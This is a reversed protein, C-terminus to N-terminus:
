RPSQPPKRTFHWAGMALALVALGFALLAYPGHRIQCGRWVALAAALLMVAGRLPNSSGPTRM